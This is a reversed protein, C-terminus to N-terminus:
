LPTSSLPSLVFHHHYTYFPSPSTPPNTKANNDLGQLMVCWCWRDGHLLTGGSFPQMSSLAPSGQVPPYQHPFLSPPLPPPDSLYHHHHHHHQHHNPNLTLLRHDSRLKEGVRPNPSPTQSLLLPAPNGSQGLLMLMLVGIPRTRASLSLRLAAGHHPPCMASHAAAQM